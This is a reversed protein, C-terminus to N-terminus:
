RARALASDLARLSDIEQATDAAHEKGLYKLVRDYPIPASSGDPDEWEPCHEHTYNRLQWPAMAGFKDWTAALVNSEARSLEDLEDLSIDPNALGVLHNERDAIFADWDANDGLLGNVFNLTVSNVPGHPMSVLKDWLMPLDYSEMFQRDALYILKTLKLVNIRGGSRKAFYAAV